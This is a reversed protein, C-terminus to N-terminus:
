FFKIIIIINKLKSNNVSADSIENDYLNLEKLNKFNVKELINIDTIKNDSLNLIELKELNVNELVKIDSINNWNLDLKKLETFNMKALDKLGEDGIFKSGLNLEKIDIHEIKTHYKDNFEKLAIFIEFDEINIDLKIKINKNYKIINLKRKNKIREFIEKLIYKSKVNDLM